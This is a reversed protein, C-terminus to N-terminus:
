WKFASLSPTELIFEKTTPDYTAKTELGRLFTGHGLESKVRWVV